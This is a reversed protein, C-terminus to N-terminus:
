KKLLQIFKNKFIFGLSTVIGSGLLWNTTSPEDKEPNLNIITTSTTIKTEKKDAIDKSKILDNQNRPILILDDNYQTLFGNITIFDNKSFEDTKIQDNNIKIKLENENDIIYFSKKYLKSIQGSVSILTNAIEEDIEEIYYELPNFPINQKIITIDNPVNVKIRSYNKLHNIKGQVQILDGYSLPPWEKNLYIAICDNLDSLECDIDYYCIHITNKYIENPLTTVIGNILLEKDKELDAVEEIEIFEIKSETIDESLSFDAPFTNKEDATFINEKEPTLNETWFYEKNMKNYSYSQEEFSKSYSLEDILNNQCDLLQLEENSNNLVIKSESRKILLYNKSKIIIDLVFSSTLDNITWNQLNIDQNNPNYLEIWEQDDSGEPNPLIENIIIEKNTTLCVKTEGLNDNSGTIYLYITTEDELESENIVKLKIKKLGISTFTIQLEKNTNKLSDNLYWKYELNQGNPDESGEANLIIEQDIKLEDSLLDINAIPVQVIEEQNELGKTLLPTEKWQNNFRAWSYNERSNTYSMEDIKEDLDNFLSITENFNNLSIGSIVRELIFYNNIDLNNFDNSSFTYQNGSADKLYCGELSVSNNNENKLEIWEANDSGEPNPLLENIIINDIANLPNNIEEEVNVILSDTSSAQGDNVILNVTYTGLDSFQHTAIELNSSALENFNWLFNLEDNDPDYSNSADFTIEQNLYANINEGAVAIPAQNSPPTSSEDGPTGNIVYSEQWNNEANYINIKELTKGNGNAGLASNYTIETILQNNNLLQITDTSNNLSLSSELITNNFNQYANLFTQADSTIIFFTSSAIQNNGQYLNLLHNSGDNFRWDSNIEITSSSLNFIEIWEQDTDAGEPDYMIETFILDDARATNIFILLSFFIISIITLYFNQYKSYM